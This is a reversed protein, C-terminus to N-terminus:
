NRPESEGIGLVRFLRHKHFMSQMSFLLNKKRYIILNMDIKVISRNMYVINKRAVNTRYKCIIKKTTYM